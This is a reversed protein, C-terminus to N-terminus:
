FYIAIICFNARSKNQLGWYYPNCFLKRREFSPKVMTVIMIEFCEIYKFLIFMDIRRM